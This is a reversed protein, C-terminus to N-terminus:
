RDLVQFAGAHRRHVEHKSNSPDQRAKLRQYVDMNERYSPGSGVGHIHAVIM